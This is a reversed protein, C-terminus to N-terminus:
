PDLINKIEKAVLNFRVKWNTFLEGLFNVAKEHQMEGNTDFEWMERSMQIYITCMASQARFVLRTKESIYGCTVIDGNPVWMERVSCKMGSFEINKKLYVCTNVMHKKIRLMDNGNFYQEKFLLEVLDLVVKQKDVVTVNVDALNKFSFPASTAIFDIRISNLPIDKNLSAKTVQLLIPSNEEDTLSPWDKSNLSSSTLYLSSTRNISNHQNSSQQCSQVSSQTIASIELIDNVELNPWTKPNIQLNCTNPQANSSNPIFQVKLKKREGIASKQPNIQQQQQQHSQHQIYHSNHNSIKTYNQQQNYNDRSISHM